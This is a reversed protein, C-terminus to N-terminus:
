KKAGVKSAKGAKRRVVEGVFHIGKGKYPEPPRVRRVRAAVEGVLEKDAGRVSVKTLGDCVFVVGAPPTMRVPHSFGVQMVLDAGEVVAKYGVGSIELDRQFGKTVGDVMNNLLSRSLGHLSRHQGSDSPRTVMIKDGERALQMDPHFARSLTAKPGAVTVNQGEITVTVSAPVTVPMRGIRSM